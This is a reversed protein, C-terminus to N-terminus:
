YNMNFAMYQPHKRRIKIPAHGRLGHENFDGLLTTWVTLSKNQTEMEMQTKIQTIIINLTQNVLNRVDCRLEAQPVIFRSHIDGINTRTGFRYVNSLVQAINEHSVRINRGQPDVGVLSRTIMDSMNQLNKLSFLFDLTENGSHTQEWGVNAMYNGDNNTNIFSKCCTLPSNM